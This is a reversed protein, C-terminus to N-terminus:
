RTKTTTKKVHCKELLYLKQGPTLSSNRYIGSQRLRRSPPEKIQYQQLGLKPRQSKEIVYRYYQYLSEAFTPDTRCEEALRDRTGTASRSRRNNSLSSHRKM